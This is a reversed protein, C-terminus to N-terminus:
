RSPRERRGIRVGAFDSVIGEANATGIRVGAFDVVIGDPGVSGIRVGAHDRVEGLESSGATGGTRAGDM